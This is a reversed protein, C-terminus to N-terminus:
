ELVALTFRASPDPDALRRKNRLPAAAAVLPGADVQVLLAPHAHISCAVILEHDLLVRRLVEVLHLGPELGIVKLDANTSELLLFYSRQLLHNLLYLSDVELWRAQLLLFNVTKHIQNIEHLPAGLNRELGMTPGLFLQDHLEDRTREVFGDAEVWLVHREHEALHVLSVLLDALLAVQDLQFSCFNAM